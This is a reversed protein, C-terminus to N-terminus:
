SIMLTQGTRASELAALNVKLTQIAEDLTCVSDPKGDIADLFANGQAIFLDDRQEVPASHLQWSSAGHLFVGWRQQHVEILLSGRECHIQYTIENPAQFQNLSYTVLVDQSRGSLSVTDEVDVGELMQHRAECALRTTPGVMWEVANILHTLADQIAGGGTEHRTYYIERYAPRFTPFHQGAAVSAQLPKGLEGQRLCQRAASVAPIFRHVYAVRVPRKTRTAERQLEPILDKGTSLPKEILLAAGGRLATLALPVHTHAPTCIVVADFRQSRLAEEFSTFGGIKYEQCVRELVATRNECAAVQVRGTKQLCRVHREGISGCGVVLMQLNM